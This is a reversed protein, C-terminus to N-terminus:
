GYSLGYLQEILGLVRSNNFNLTYDTLRLAIHMQNYAGIQTDLPIIYVNRELIMPTSGLPDLQM